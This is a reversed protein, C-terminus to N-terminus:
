KEPTVASESFLTWRPGASWLAGCLTLVRGGGPGLVRALWELRVSGRAGGPRTEGRPAGMRKGPTPYCPMRLDCDIVAGVVLLTPRPASWKVAKLRTGRPGAWVGAPLPRKSDRFTASHAQARLSGCQRVASTEAEGAKAGSFFVFFGARQALATLSM